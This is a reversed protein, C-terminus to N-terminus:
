TSSPGVKELALRRTSHTTSHSRGLGTPATAALAAVPDLLRSLSAVLLKVADRDLQDERGFSHLV